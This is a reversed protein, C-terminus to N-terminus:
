RYGFIFKSTWNKKWKLDNVRTNEYGMESEKEKERQYIDIIWHSSFFGVFEVADNFYEFNKKTCVFM